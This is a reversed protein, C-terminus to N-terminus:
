KNALKEQGPYYGSRTRVQLDKFGPARALVKITRYGAPAQPDKKYGITYQNRIDRAVQQTVQDVLALDTADLLFAVGGTEEALAKLARKGKRKSEQDLLGVTYITPGGEVQVRRIAQELSEASANDWGDTIVLLVKKDLKKDVNQQKMIQDTSAVVADYLATEGKAEINELGEKLKPISSTFDVDLYASDSFNVIFVRDDPNSSRVFNLAAQTVAPRKERMSGSDDVLIGVAVPVDERRFSIIPQPRGDEYVTFASQPLSTVLHQHGDVVTAHLIVEDVEKRLTFVGNKGLELSQGQNNAPPGPEAGETPALRPTTTSTPAPPTITALAANSPVTLEQPDLAGDTPAASTQASAPPQQAAPQPAPASQAQGRAAFCLGACLTLALLFYRNRRLM